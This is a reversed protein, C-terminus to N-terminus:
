RMLLRVQLAKPSHAKSAHYRLLSLLRRSTNPGGSATETRVRLVDEMNEATGSTAVRFVYRCNPRGILLSISQTMAITMCMVHRTPVISIRDWAEQGVITEMRGRGM